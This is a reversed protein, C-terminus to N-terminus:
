LLLLEKTVMLKIEILLSLKKIPHMGPLILTVTNGSHYTTTTFGTTQTIQTTTVGAVNGDSKLIVTQGDSLSGSVTFEATGGGGGGIAAWASGDYGRLQKDTSNFYIDGESATGPNATSIAFGVRNDGSKLIMM